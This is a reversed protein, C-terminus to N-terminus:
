VLEAEVGGKELKATLEKIASMIGKISRAGSCIIKGGANIVFDIGEEEMRYLVGPFKEPEYRSGELSSAAKQLDVGGRIRFAAVISEIEIQPKEPVEIGLEKVKDLVKKMAEEAGRVSKAGTCVIKGSPLVIAVAKPDELRCVAGTSEGSEHGGEEGFGLRELPISTGIDTAATVDEISVPLVM